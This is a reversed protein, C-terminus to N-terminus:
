REVSTAEEEEKEITSEKTCKGENDIPAGLGTLRVTVGALFNGSRRVLVCQVVPRTGIVTWALRTQGSAGFLAYATASELQLIKVSGARRVRPDSADARAAALCSPSARCGSLQDLMGALNGKAEAQILALDDDREANEVSLFRALLASLFLIVIVGAALLARLIRRQRPTLGSWWVRPGRAAPAPTAAPAV